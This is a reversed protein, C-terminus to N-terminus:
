QKDPTVDIIRARGIIKTSVECNQMCPASALQGDPRPDPLMFGNQNPMKVSGITENSLAFEDDIVDNMYLIYAVVQYTEDHTLSQAEGFPMARYVYDYVTSAYPWYSGVTKVPDATVLSGLGGALVPWRDVGEGFDGHCGACREAYVEEGDAATGSGIPAGKGDPRVDIDWGAIQEATALTGLGFPRDAANVSGSLAMAFGAFVGTAVMSKAFHRMKVLGYM